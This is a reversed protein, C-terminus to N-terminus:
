DLVEKVIYLNVFDALASKTKKSICIYMYEKFHPYNKYGTAIHFYTYESKPDSVETKKELKQFSLIQIKLKFFFVKALCTNLTTYFIFVQSIYTEIGADDAVSSLSKLM